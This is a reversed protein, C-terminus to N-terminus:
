PRLGDLCGQVAAEIEAPSEALFLGHQAAYRAYGEPDTAGDHRRYEVSNAQQELRCVDKQQEYLKRQYGVFDSRPADAAPRGSSNGDSSCGVLALVTALAAVGM